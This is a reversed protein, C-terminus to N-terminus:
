FDKLVLVSFQYPHFISFKDFQPMHSLESRHYHAMADSIAYVRVHGMHLQGSPYPFMSLIYKTEGGDKIVQEQASKVLEPVIPKWHKEIEHLNDQNLHKPWESTLSFISRKVLKDYHRYTLYIKHNSSYLFRPLTKLTM